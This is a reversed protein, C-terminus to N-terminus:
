LSAGREILANRLLRGDVLRPTKGERISIASAVAAAEGMARCNTQIRVSAQAEFTASLCRGAVLLNEIKKPILCRFPIEHYSGEPLHILNAGEEGENRHIDIPYNNRAVADEFKRGELVDEATLTYEGVIRRSERVGVMPAIAVLSAEECGSLYTRIFEMYRRIAKRGLIQARTLHEPNTGDTQGAIRPCNFFLERPRGAVTFAQFYDGDREDLVGDAVARRFVPELTWGMGWVMATHILPVSSGEAEEAIEHRGLSRLFEAFRKLDINGASFRVSFPQNVGRDDGAVCPAGARFAVDADGTADIVRKALVLSRGAKNLLTAGMVAGREVVADDFMTYYLIEAGAELAMEELVFKLAEPNFWGRNGDRWVGSEHFSILRSNVEYDLGRNLPKGEIQNPMMPTVLAGTQTGGLFGFQEVILTKMGERAAAVGAVAGATGGGVVLIDVERAAAGIKQAEELSTM